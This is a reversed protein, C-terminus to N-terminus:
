TRGSAELSGYGINSLWPPLLDITNTQLHFVEESICRTLINADPRWHLCIRARHRSDGEVAVREALRYPTIGGALCKTKLVRVHRTSVPCLEIGPMTHFVLTTGATSEIGVIPARALNCQTDVSWFRTRGGAPNLGGQQSPIGAPHTLSTRTLLQCRQHFIAESAAPHWSQPLEPTTQPTRTELPHLLGCDRRM